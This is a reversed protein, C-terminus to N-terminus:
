NLVYLKDFSSLLSERMRRFTINGLFSNNTILAVIGSKNQDIKWQAFKMFKVYDDDLNGLRKEKLDKKYDKLREIIWPKNNESSKYWPPNGLVVM